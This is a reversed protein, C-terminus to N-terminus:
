SNIQNGTGRIEDGKMDQRSLPELRNTREGMERHHFRLNPYMVHQTDVIHLEKRMEETQSTLCHTLLLQSVARSNDRRRRTLLVLFVKVSNAM